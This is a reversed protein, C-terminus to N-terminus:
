QSAHSLVMLVLPVLGVTIIIMQELCVILADPINDKPASYNIAMSILGSSWIFALIWFITSAM